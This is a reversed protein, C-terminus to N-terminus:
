KKYYQLAKPMNANLREIRRDPGPHTSLFEPPAGGGAAAMRQWFAPAQRPDYGAMAMFILGMEDAELEHKRSFSLMGLQSGAGVGQLLIQQMMTPNQGMAASAGGLLGNLLMGNSMRERAHSAVAHAIEHGMVVAIGAEDKTIPLIGTYFAVKGGPMCWANIQDSELLNFEWAFDNVLDQYGESVLYSEVAKAMKQGVKVVMQGNSTKTLNKEAAIAKKYEENVLPQIEENSIVALSRRGTLPVTTCAYALLGASFILIIKKM